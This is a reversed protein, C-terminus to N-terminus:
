PSAPRPSPRKLEGLKPDALYADAPRSTQLTTFGAGRLRQLRAPLDDRVGIMVGLPFHSM